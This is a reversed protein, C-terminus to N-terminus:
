VNGWKSFWRKQEGCTENTCGPCRLMMQISVPQGNPGSFLFWREILLIALLMQSFSMGETENLHEKVIDAMARIFIPSTNLSEARVVTM